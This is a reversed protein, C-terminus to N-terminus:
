GHCRPLTKLEWKVSPSVSTLPFCLRAAAWAGLGPGEAHPAWSFRWTCSPTEGAWESSCIYLRLQAGLLRSGPQPTGGVLM